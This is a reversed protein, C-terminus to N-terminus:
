NPNKKLRSKQDIIPLLIACFIATFYSLYKFGIPEHFLIVGLIAITSSLAIGIIFGGILGVIIAIFTRM